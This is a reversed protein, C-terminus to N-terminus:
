FPKPASPVFPYQPGYYLGMQPQLPQLPYNQTAQHSQYQPLYYYVLPKPDANPVMSPAAGHSSTVALAEPVITANANTSAAGTLTGTAAGIGNNVATVIATSNLFPISPNSSAGVNTVGTATSYPGMNPDNPDYQVLTYGDGSQLAGSYIGNPQTYEFYPCYDAYGMSQYYPDYGWAYQQSPPYILRITNHAKKAAELVTKRTAKKEKKTSYRKPLTEPKSPGIVPREAKRTKHSKNNYPIARSPNPDSESGTNSAPNTAITISGATNSSAAITATAPSSATVSTAVAMAPGSSKDLKAWSNKPYRKPKNAVTKDLKAWPNKPDRKQMMPNSNPLTALSLAALAEEASSVTTATRAAPKPLLLSPMTQKYQTFLGPNAPCANATNPTNTVAPSSASPPSLKAWPNLPDRIDEWSLHVVKPPIKIMVNDAHRRCQCVTEKLNLSKVNGGNELFRYPVIPSLLKRILFNNEANIRVQDSSMGNGINKMLHYLENYHKSNIPIYPIGAQLCYDSKSASEGNLHDQCIGNKAVRFLYHFVEGNIEFGILPKGNKNLVVDFHYCGLLQERKLTYVDNGFRGEYIRGHKDAKKLNLHCALLESIHGEVHSTKEKNFPKEEFKTVCNQIFSRSLKLRFGLASFFSGDLLNNRHLFQRILYSPKTQLTESLQCVYDLARLLEQFNPNEAIEHKKNISECLIGLDRTITLVSTFFSKPDKTRTQEDFVFLFAAASLAINIVESRQERQEAFFHTIAALELLRGNVSLPSKTAKDIIKGEKSFWQLFRTGLADRLPEYLVKSMQLNLALRALESLEGEGQQIRQSLTELLKYTSNENDGEKKTLDLILDEWKQCIFLPPPALQREKAVLVMEETKAILHTLPPLTTTPEPKKEPIKELKKVVIKRQAINEAFLQEVFENDFANENVNYEKILAVIETLTKM